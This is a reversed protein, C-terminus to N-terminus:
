DLEVEARRDVGNGSSVQGRDEQRRGEDGPEEALIEPPQDPVLVAEGCEGDVADAAQHHRQRWQGYGSAGGISATPVGRRPRTARM